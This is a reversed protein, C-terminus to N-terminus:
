GFFLDGVEEEYRSLRRERERLELLKRVQNLAVSPCLLAGLAGLGALKSKAEDREQAIVQRRQEVTDIVKDLTRIFPHEM